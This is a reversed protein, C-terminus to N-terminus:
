VARRFRGQLREQDRARVVALVDGAVQGTKGVALAGRVGLCGIPLGPRTAARAAGSLYETAVGHSDAADLARVAYSGGPGEIYRQVARRFLEDKNGFAAYMSKRSIGMAGTLDALSAGDYGQEWFVVIARDLAEDADFGRPRGKRATTM